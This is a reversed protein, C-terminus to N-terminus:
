NDPALARTICDKNVFRNSLILHREWSKNPMAVRVRGQNSRTASRKCSQLRRRRRLLRHQLMARRTGRSQNSRPRQREIQCESLDAQRQTSIQLLSVSYRTQPPPVLFRRTTRLLCRSLRLCRIPRSPVVFVFGMLKTHRLVSADCYKKNTNWVYVHRSSIPGKPLTPLASRHVLQDELLVQDDTMHCGVGGSRPRGFQLLCATSNSVAFM